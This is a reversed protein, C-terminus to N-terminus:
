TNILLVFNFSLFFSYLSVINKEYISYICEQRVLLKLKNLEIVICFLIFLQFNTDPFVYAPKQFFSKQLNLNKLYFVLNKKRHFIMILLIAIRNYSFIQNFYLRAVPGRLQKYFLVPPFIM